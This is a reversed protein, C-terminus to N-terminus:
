CMESIFRYEFKGRPLLFKNFSEEIGNGTVNHTHGHLRVEKSDRLRLDTIYVREGEVRPRFRNSKHDSIYWGEERAVKRVTDSIIWKPAKFGRGDIGMEEARRMKERCEDETWSLTEGTTHWWGHMALEVWSKNANYRKLLKPSCKKPITFLTVKFSPDNEKLTLLMDYPNWMDCLDDLDVITVLKEEQM